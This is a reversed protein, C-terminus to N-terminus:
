DMRQQDCVKELSGEAMPKRVALSIQPKAFTQPDRQTHGLCIGIGRSVIFKFSPRPSGALKRGCCVSSSGIAYHWGIKHTGGKMQYTTYLITNCHPLFSTFDLGTNRKACVLPRVFANTNMNGFFQFRYSVRNCKRSTLFSVSRTSDRKGNSILRIGDTNAAVLQSLKLTSTQKNM